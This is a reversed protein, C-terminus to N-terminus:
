RRPPSSQHAHLVKWQGDRLVFVLTQAFPTGFTEGQGTTASSDGQAVLIAVTPTVVTVHLQNWRYELKRIGRFNNKVRALAQERTLLLNGNQIVSGKDTDLMFSFLRDADLDEAARTMQANAALVAQEIAARDSETMTREDPPGALLLSGSALVVVLKFIASM